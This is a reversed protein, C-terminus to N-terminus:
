ADRSPPAPARHRVNRYVAVTGVALLAAAALIGVILMRQMDIAHQDIGSRVELVETATMPQAASEDGGPVAPGRAQTGPVFAIADYPQVIGWGADDSRQDLDSRLATVELRYRWMEASENPHAAAVLAASASVFATAFSTSPADQQDFACDGGSLAITILEQGPAAVSVQEGTITADTVLNGPVTTAAVGVVDGYGAPYRVTDSEDDDIAAKDGTRNGTSAVVLIGADAARVIASALPRYNTATSMSVNIIDVGADVAAEIGAALRENTPDVGQREAEDGDAAYVRVPYISVGPALGILGSDATEQAVILSAIATGHGYIDRQGFDGKGDGVLDVGREVHGRLRPDAANVGSDVVAIRVGEGRTIRWAKDAQLLALEPQPTAVRQDAPCAEEATADPTPAASAAASGFTGLGLALVLTLAGAFVTRRTM